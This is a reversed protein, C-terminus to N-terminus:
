LYLHILQRTTSRQFESTYFDTMLQSDVLSRFKIPSLYRPTAFRRRDKDFINKIISNNSNELRLTTRYGLKMLFQDIPEIDCRSYLEENRIFVRRGAGDLRYAQQGLSYRLCKREFLRIQEMLTPSIYFWIPFGYSIVSRVVQKYIMLKIAPRLTSRSHLAKSWNMQAAAALRLCHQVHSKFCFERDLYVGLYKFSNVNKLTEGAVAVNPLTARCTRFSSSKGIFTLVESKDTNIRVGWSLYYSHLDRIFRNLKSEM